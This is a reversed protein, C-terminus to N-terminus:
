WDPGPRRFRDSVWRGPVTLAIWLPNRIAIFPLSVHPTPPAAVVRRAATVQAIRASQSALRMVYRNVPEGALIVVPSLIIILPWIAVSIAAQTVPGPHRM